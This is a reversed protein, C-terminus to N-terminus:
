MQSQIKKQDEEVHQTEPQFTPDEDEDDIDSFEHESEEELWKTIQDEISVFTGAATRKRTSSTSANNSTDAM